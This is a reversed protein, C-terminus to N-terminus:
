REKAKRNKNAYATSNHRFMLSIKIQILTMKIRLKGVRLLSKTIVLQLPM